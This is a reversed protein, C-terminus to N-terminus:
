FRVRVGATFYRGVVDYIVKDTQVNLNTVAGGTPPPNVNFLNRINVFGQIRQDEDFFYTSNLNVYIENPMQPFDPDTWVQGQRGQTYSGTFRESVTFSFRDTRYTQSLLGRWKPLGYGNQIAYTYGANEVVAADDRDQTNLRELYNVFARLSIDGDVGEIIDGVPFTYGLEFDVGRTELVALNQPSQIVTTVRNAASRDSFPLPRVFFDCVPSQGNSDECEQLQDFPNASAIADQVKVRYFDASFTLGPIAAPQIVVGLTTTDAKEPNLNPNGENSFLPVAAQVNTHCDPNTYNPDNCAPDRLHIDRFGGATANRGAFLAFLSPAAIDRSQNFRFRVGDVPEWSAGVKWTVVSGSTEYDTLRAALTLDLSEAFSEGDFVPIQLEGYVEKVEQSGTALGVNISDFLQAAPHVGRIGAFYEDRSPNNPDQFFAPDSNSTIDLTQHRYEAGVSIGVPGAPLDILEGSINANIYHMENTIASISDDRVFDLAAQSFNNTGIMNIPVCNDLFGPNVLTVRCVISGNPARVADLAAAYNRTNFENFVSTLEAHGFNYTLDWRWNGDIDGFLAARASYYENETRNTVLGVDNFIRGFLVREQGADMMIQRYEPRLYPNDWYLYNARGGAIHNNPTSNFGTKSNAYIGQLQFEISDSVDYSARLFAQHTALSGTVSTGRNVEDGWAAGDGGIGLGGGQDIGPDMPRLTGDPNFTNGYFLPAGPSGSSLDSGLAQIYDAGFAFFGLLGYVTGGDSIFSRRGDPVLRFPDNATGAGLRTLGNPAWPRDYLHPIGDNEYYEYSGMVHLRDGADFGFAGGLRYSFSDGYDSIGAQAQAKLGVFDDDLVYNVVGSVADSGYIASAGGTVVDVRQVLMQPLMNMDVSNDRFTPAVRQGDLLVLLRSSSLGRLNLYNGLPASGANFTGGANQNTSGSFQPLENLGDAINSPAIEALADTAVVTVPTPAQSGDTVIRSGTVVIRDDDDSDDSDVQAQAMASFSVGVAFMTLYKLSKM